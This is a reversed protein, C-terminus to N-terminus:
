CWLWLLLSPHATIHKSGRLMFATRLLKWLPLHPTPMDHAVIVIQCVSLVWLALQISQIQFINEVTASQPLPIDDRIMSALVCSSLLPQTDIYIIRENSIYVDVGLTQHTCNIVNDDNGIPFIPMTSSSIVQSTNNSCLSSLITSKGVGDGGIIGIVSYDFQDRLL